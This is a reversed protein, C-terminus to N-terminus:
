ATRRRLLVAGLLATLAGLGLAASGGTAPL